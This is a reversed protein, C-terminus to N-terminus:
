IGGRASYLFGYYACKHLIRQTQRPCYGYVLTLSKGKVLYTDICLANKGCPLEIHSQTATPSQFSYLKCGGDWLISNTYAVFYISEYFVAM